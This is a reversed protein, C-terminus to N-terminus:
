GPLLGIVLVTLLQGIFLLLHTSQYAYIRFIEDAIMFASWLALSVGFATYVEGLGTNGTVGYGYFARWFLLVGLGEWLLVGLFLLGIAWRPLPVSNAIARFNGSVWRWGDPLLGLRKLADFLNTLLVITLWLSWFFLLGAKVTSLEINIM